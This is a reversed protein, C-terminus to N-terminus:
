VKTDELSVQGDEDKICKVSKLDGIRRNRAKALKFTEKEADKSDLRQYLRGYANNKAVITTKKAERKAIRYRV